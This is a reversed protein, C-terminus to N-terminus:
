LFLLMLFNFVFLPHWLTEKMPAVNYAQFELTKKAGATSRTPSSDNSSLGDM